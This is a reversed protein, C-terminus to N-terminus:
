GMARSFLAICQLKTINSDPAFETDSVGNIYGADAMAKIQSACWSYQSGTIDTFSGAALVPQIMTSCCAAAALAAIIKKNM